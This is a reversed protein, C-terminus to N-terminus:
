KERALNRLHGLKAAGHWPDCSFCLGSLSDGFTELHCACPFNQTTFLAFAVQKLALVPLALAIETLSAENGISVDLIDFLVKREGSERFASAVFRAGV